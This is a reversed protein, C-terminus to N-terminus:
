QLQKELASATLLKNVESKRVAWLGSPMRVANLLGDRIWNVITNPSKGLQRGVESPTLLPDDQHTPPDAVSNAKRTM